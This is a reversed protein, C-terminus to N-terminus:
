WTPGRNLLKSSCTLSSCPSPCSDWSLSPSPLSQCRRENGGVVVRRRQQLLKVGVLDRGGFTM